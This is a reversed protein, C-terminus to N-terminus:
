RLFPLPSRLVTAVQNAQLHVAVAKQIQTKNELTKLYGLSLLKDAANLAQHDSLDDNLALWSRVSEPLAKTFRLPLAETSFSQVYAASLFPEYQEAEPSRQQVFSLAVGKLMQRLNETEAPPLESMFPLESLAPNVNGPDGTSLHTGGIVALLYKPGALQEFPALQHNLTPTVGDQTGTLLLTPVSVESLGAEGFLQGTLTNMAMVQKIRPDSLDAQQEPLDVAACQLWDAPSVTLPQINQCFNQLSRLDLKAGALALGTYGGLSHGIITVEETNFAGRYAADSENAKALEDLVFSVDRPRDLFESAPLLRSPTKGAAPDLPTDILAQVNSGPHEVSVVTLGYSALHEALYLLFNRDSGFGHSLVVLPGLENLESAQASRSWHINVPITRDRGEDYFSVSEFSVREPGPAAPDLGSPLSASADVKLAQDLVSSLSQSEITSFNLQSILAIASTLDVELTDQPIARLIGLVSLGDGQMAALRIAAQIQPMSLDPAVQTLTNLLLEGNPSDIVDSIIRDSMSPDLDLKQSLSTQVQPSLFREYLRLGDPVDGTQAFSELDSLEISQRLPGVTLVVREATNGPSAALVSLGLGLLSAKLFLCAKAGLFQEAAAPQQRQMFLRRCAMSLVKSSQSSHM